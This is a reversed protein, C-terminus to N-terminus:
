AGGALSEIRAELEELGLAGCGGPSVRARLSEDPDGEGLGDLSAKVERYADRFAMGGAALDVARDTAYMGPGISERMRDTHLTLGELVRPVLASAQTVSKLGRVLAGKSLQLDRHYGSPLSVLQMLESMAGGVVSASARLLEGVDPNRKNPMISSGTSADDGLTVFGFEESAFLTLDWGLRRVVQALQWAAGLAQVDHAGRSAQAHMPNLLLRDFGLEQAVGTRDLPINVGYGAATGLPSANLWACTAHLLAAADCFGEVYSGMWLGVSSPTARQLHTYGPMPDMAHARAMRLAARAGDLSQGALRGLAEITYLRTAVLVQDNRSRGLHVRKGTEGLREVLFAEIASHGDEYRDDLEFAGRGILERLESLAREIALSEEAGILGLRELGRVHALTATVDHGILERDLRVDEGAMFRTMAEDVRGERESTAWIPTSM